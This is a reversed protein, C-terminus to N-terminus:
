ALFIILILQILEAIIFVGDPALGFKKDLFWAVLGSLLFTILIIAFTIKLVLIM